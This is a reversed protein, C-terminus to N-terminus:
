GADKGALVHSELWAREADLAASRRGFPGLVPGGVPSLDATWLGDADPEVSSARRIAPRGLSPLDLAESYLCRVTGDTDFLLTV